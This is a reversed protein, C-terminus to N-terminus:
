QPGGNHCDHCRLEDADYPGGPHKFELGSATITALEAGRGQAIITHCARCDSARLTRGQDDRHSGGHCRFCGAWDKHGLNNPYFRWDAKREPFMIAAHIQQVEAVAASLDAHNPYKEQLFAAILTPAAASTTIEEQLLAQAAIRKINPLATSLRGSALAREIADNATPFVHAPRNHCDLCGMTRISGAPPEGPFDGARFVNSAGTTRDTVRMWAIEQRKEDRAYYEVTHDKSAHWHIGAPADGPRGRNVHMLLRVSYADNRRNSLYHDYTIDINGHFKEPWHCKGCTEAATLQGPMPTPIPRAYNDLAFSILQRAGNLKAQAFGGAGAGVHCEVCAVRAHASRHYTEYEPRMASHCVLGCFRNSEAYHYSQYSGFASLLLFLVGGVGFLVLVRRQAPNAFDLRWRDPMTAGHKRLWRRQAWAGFAMTLLGAILFGPAVMYTFIGLYPNQGAGTLDMWVLLFFSFLAGVALVAGCASIWNNFHSRPQLVPASPNPPEASM